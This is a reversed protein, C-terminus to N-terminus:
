GDLLSSGHWVIGKDVDAVQRREARETIEVHAILRRKVGTISRTCHTDRQVFPIGSCLGVIGAKGLRGVPVARQVREPEVGRQGGNGVIATAHGVGRPDPEDQL